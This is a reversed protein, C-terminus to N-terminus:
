RAKVRSGVEKDRLQRRLRRPEHSHRQGAQRARRTRGERGPLNQLPKGVPISLNQFQEVAAPNARNLLNFFEFIVQVRLKETIAFRKSVRVDLNVETM